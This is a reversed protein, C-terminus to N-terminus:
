VTREPSAYGLQMWNAEADALTLSPDADADYGFASFAEPHREHIARALEPIILKRWLGPRGQWVHGPWRHGPGEARVTELSHRALVADIDNRPTAGFEVCLRAFEAHPELVLREYSAHTARAAWSTSVDFLAAARWSLAYRAFAESAPSVGVLTSENGCEGEIWRATLGAREASRCYALISLLVDLPHRAMAVTRFRHERLFGEFATTRRRHMVVICGDAPIQSWDVTIPMDFSNGAIDLLDGLARGFWTSGTRPTCAVFLRTPV